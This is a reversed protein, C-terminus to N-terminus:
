QEKFSGSNRHQNEDNTQELQQIQQLFFDINNKICQGINSSKEAELKNLGEVIALGLLEDISQTTMAMDITYSQKLAKLYQKFNLEPQQLHETVDEIFTKMFPVHESQKLM